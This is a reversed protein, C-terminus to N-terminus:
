LSDQLQRLQYLYSDTVLEVDDATVIEDTGVESVVAAGTLLELPVYDNEAAVAADEVSGYVTYGGPADIEDGPDLPRKAKGVVEAHQESPIGTAQNRLAAAAISVTTESAAHFHRYFLQYKGDTASPVNGRRDFYQRRQANDTTTIVFVSHGGDVTSAADVVGTGSLLGGDSELRLHEPLTELTTEPMHMGSVDPRLGIANAAICSEVALKTGDLFSNYIYPSPDYEEVFSGIWSHRELADDPTGHPEPDNAWRGAAVIDLGTSKAWDCLRVIQAPQDGYALTYTVGCREALTALYPGVVTDTEVTVQVVHKDNLIANHAHKAAINPNGTAEVVVDVAAEILVEGDPVVARGGAAVVADTEATTTVRDVASRSVGAHQYTGVAKDPKIDAIVTTEMGPTEEIGYVLQSGFIGAGIVGVRIPEAREELDASLNLM